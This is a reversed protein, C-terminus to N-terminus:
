PILQQRLAEAVANTRNSAGLKDKAKRFHTRITEAGLHLDKAIAAIDLGQAAMRLVALERPTLQTPSPARMPDPGVLADIRMIAFSAGMFAMVRAQPSLMQSLVKRSWYALVWRGGVPCTLGDRMGHKLALNMAWREVGIPEMMRRSETWTYPALSIRAMMIGPDYTHRGVTSYDHWWGRPVSKHLFVTEGLKLAEWDGVRYPFRGAGLVRLPHTHSTAEDLAELVHNPTDFNGIGTAFNMLRGGLERDAPTWQVDASTRRPMTAEAAFAARRRPEPQRCRMAIQVQEAM